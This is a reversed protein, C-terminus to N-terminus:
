VLGHLWGLLDVGVDLWEVIRYGLFIGVIGLVGALSPPAPIPIEAFRFLAGVLTGTLLALLLETKM